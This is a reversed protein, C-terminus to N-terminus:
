SRWQQVAFTISSILSGSIVLWTGSGVYSSSAAFSSPTPTSVTSSSVTSASLPATESSMTASATSPSSRTLTSTSSLVSSSSTNSPSVGEQPNRRFSHCKESATKSCNMQAGLNGPNLLYCNTVNQECLFAPITLLWSSLDPITLNQCRCSYDLTIQM